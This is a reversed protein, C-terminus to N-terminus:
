QNKDNEILNRVIDPVTDVWRDYDYHVNKKSWKVNDFYKVYTNDAKHYGEFGQEYDDCASLYANVEGDEVELKVCLRPNAMLEGSTICPVYDDIYLNTYASYEDDFKNINNIMNCYSLAKGEEVPTDPFVRLLIPSSDSEGGWVPTGYIAKLHPVADSM